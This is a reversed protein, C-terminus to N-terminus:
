LTSTRYTQLWEQAFKIKPEITSFNKELLNLVVKTRPNSEFLHQHKSVFNWYLGDWIESWAGKKYDSMKIIYNSGSIYPKTTLTGQDAYQSMAYVNPVMVWDYSDIFNAMFWTYVEDPHSETLLLFNGLIMLREIHHCYGTEQIKKITDDIPPLGTKGKWFSAPIPNEYGFRNSLRLKRGIMVYSARIFERWGIIQRIFGELSNLPIEKKRHSKLAATIVEQPTLLGINLLPSLVSHFMYPEKQSIADEYDGFLRLRHEIFDALSNKAESHTCPYSFYNLKGVAFPFEKKVYDLAEKVFENLKPIYPEPPVLGKPLRKRNESDFSFKGGLPGEKDMLIDLSRRQYAYFQAMSYKKKGHFFAKVDEQTCIFHPSEYFTVKLALSDVAHALDQSLWDDTLTALHISKVGQKKLVEFVSGRIKLDASEIYTVDFGLCELHHRYAQMAARLLVLKQRHLPQVLFYLFEEVLYVKREKALAPHTEFLHDPFILTIEAM